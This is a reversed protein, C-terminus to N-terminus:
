DLRAWSDGPPGIERKADEILRIVNRFKKAERANDFSAIVDAGLHNVYPVLYDAGERYVGRYRTRRLRYALPDVVGTVHTVAADLADVSEATRREVRAVQVESIAAPEAV